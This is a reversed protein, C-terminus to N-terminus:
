SLSIFNAIEKLQFYDDRLFFSLNQLLMSKQEQTNQTSLLLKCISKIQQKIMPHGIVYNMFSHLAINSEMIQNFTSNSTISCRCHLGVNIKQLGGIFTSQYFSGIMIATLYPKILFQHEPHEKQLTEETMNLAIARRSQDISDQFSNIVAYIVEADDRLISILPHITLDFDKQYLEILFTDYTQVEVVEGIYLSENLKM